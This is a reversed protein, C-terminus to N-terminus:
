RQAMAWASAALPTSIFGGLMLVAAVPAPLISVLKTVAEM